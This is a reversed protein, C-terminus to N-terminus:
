EGVEANPTGYRKAFTSTRISPCRLQEDAGPLDNYVTDIVVPPQPLVKM